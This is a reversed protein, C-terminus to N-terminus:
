AHPLGAPALARQLDFPQQTRLLTWALEVLKRMVAVLIVKEPKGRARLRQSLPQFVPNWRRAV